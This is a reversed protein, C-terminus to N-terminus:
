ECEKVTLGKNCYHLLIAHRRLEESTRMRLKIRIRMRHTEVTKTSLHLEQAIERLSKGKGILRLVQLERDSLSAEPSGPMVIGGCAMRELLVHEIQPALHRRGALAQVITALVDSVSDRRCAYGLSGAAMARQVSLADTEGSFVVIRVEPTLRRLDKLVSTGGGDVEPDVVVVDPRHQECMQRTEHGAFASGCVTMGEHSRIIQALGFAMVPEPQAVLISSKHAPKTM